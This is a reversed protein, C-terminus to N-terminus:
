NQALVAGSADKPASFFNGHIWVRQGSNASIVEFWIGDRQGTVALADGQSARDAITYNTGPGERLNVSRGTVTGTPRSPEKPLATQDVGSATFVVAELVAERPAASEPAISRTVAPAMELAEAAPQLAAQTAVDESSPASIELGVM